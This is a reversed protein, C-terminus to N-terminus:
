KSKHFIVYLHIKTIDDWDISQSVNEVKLTFTVRKTVSYIGQHVSIASLCVQEEQNVIDCQIDPELDPVAVHEGSSMHGRILICDRIRDLVSRVDTVKIGTDFGLSDHIITPLVSYNREKRNLAHILLM